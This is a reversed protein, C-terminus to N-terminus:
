GSQSENKANSGGSNEKNILEELRDLRAEIEELNAIKATNALHIAVARLRNESRLDTFGQRLAKLSEDTMDLLKRSLTSITDQESKRLADIFAPDSRMWRRLTRVNVGAAIAADERTAGAILALIAAHKKGLLVFDSM